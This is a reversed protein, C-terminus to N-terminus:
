EGKIKYMKMKRNKWYKRNYITEKSLSQEYTISLEALRKKTIEVLEPTIVVRNETEKGLGLKKFKILQARYFSVISKKSGTVPNEQM